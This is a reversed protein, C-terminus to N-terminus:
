KNCNILSLGTGLVKSSDLHHGKNGPHANQDEDHSRRVLNISMTLCSGASSTAQFRLHRKCGNVRCAAPTKELMRRMEPYGEPSAYM